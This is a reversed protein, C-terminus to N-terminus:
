ESQPLGAQSMNEVNEEPLENIFRSPITNIWQGYMQRNAAFTIIATQKARTLGVYALRREEELGNIGNEDMTRQSPFLGDEWGTLFVYDFELGKAGHLTMITIANDTNKAQTDLVLAIHELFAPISDFEEIAAILEKLNELRGAADPNKDKQWMKTYGSEDLIIGAMEAHPTSDMEKRWREFDNTLLRLTTRIKPKLEETNCLHLTSSYLSISHKRAYKHLQQLTANGIGRKPTNIIREFALDDNPQVVLRLYALADRIELREYFRAGGIVRYPLGAKNFSEEFGRMQFSARVLIVIQSLNINKFQLTEIEETIWRAEAPADWFGHITVPDGKQAASWLTKGFRGKNKAIIGSAAALIHGTSRYNQELRILKANDFDKEFRLINEVEAGRWGYISQDDDGVCCINGTGQAFLRLWLYQATNTDQYEDVLVYRFQRHYDQLIDTNKPDKLITIVHLLLDAFDCANLIKLRDQYNRYLKLLKNDAIDKTDNISIDSPLKAQDKWRDIISIIMRPPYKKIDINELEMLQKMLRTQDDPDLITFNYKLGVVEAHRRLIRAALSHFTGIWWGEVPQGGLLLSVREKMEQAAKNTFTVALIQSPWAKKTQIIHTLRSTLVRTKGTGAGALVLVAGETTLVAEKQPANLGELYYSPCATVDTSTSENEEDFEFLDSM